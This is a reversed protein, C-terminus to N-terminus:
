GLVFLGVRKVSQMIGVTWEKDAGYVMPYFLVM